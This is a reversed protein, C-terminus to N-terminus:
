CRGDYILESKLSLMDTKLRVFGAVPLGHIESEPCLYQILRGVLPMHSVLLLSTSEGWLLPVQEPHASHLLCNDSRMTSAQLITQCIDATQTTRVYPSHVLETPKFGSEALLTAQEAVRSRGYNTLEREDDRRVFSEAEGHRFIVLDLWVTAM